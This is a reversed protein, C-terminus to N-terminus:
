KSRDILKLAGNPLIEGVDGTSVWGDEDITNETAKKDRFYRSFASASKFVIEGRPPNDTTKFGLETVDRLKIKVGSHIGGVHEGAAIDDELCSTLLTAESSGYGKCLRLGLAM